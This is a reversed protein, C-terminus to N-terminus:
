IIFWLFVVAVFLASASIIYAKLAFKEARNADWRKKIKYTKNIQAIEGTSSLALEENLEKLAQDYDKDSMTMM